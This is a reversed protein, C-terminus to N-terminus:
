CPDYADLCDQCNSLTENITFENTYGSTSLGLLTYCGYELNLVDYLAYIGGMLNFSGTVYGTIINSDCCNQLDVIKPVPSALICIECTPAGPSTFQLNFYSPSLNDAYGLVTYCKQTIEDYYFSGVNVDVEPPSGVIVQFIIGNCDQVEYANFCFGGKGGQLCALCTEFKEFPKNDYYIFTPLGTTSYSMVEWCLGFLDRLISGETFAMFESLIQIVEVRNLDCCLRVTLYYFPPCPNATTCVECSVVPGGGPYITVVDINYNTPLQDLDKDMVRWCIGFNDVFADDINLSTTSAIVEAYKSCCSEIFYMTPCPNLTTCDGCEADPIISVVTISEESLPAGTEGVVRWCLSNNDVFVDGLALGPLSGTVFETGQVCCSEIVLNQPCAYEDQCKACSEYNNLFTRTFNTVDNSESIVEWCNAETDVHFSGVQLGPSNVLETVTPECCNRIIFCGTSLIECPRTVDLTYSVTATPKELLVECEGLGDECIIEFAFGLYLRTTHVDYKSSLTIKNNFCIKGDFNGGEQDVPLYKIPMFTYSPIFVNTDSCDFSFIGYVFQVRYKLDNLELLKDIYASGNITIVDGNFLNTPIPIGSPIQPRVVLPNFEDIQNYKTSSWISMPPKFLAGYFLVSPEDLNSDMYFSHNVIKFIEPSCKQSDLIEVTVDNGVATANVNEGIFDISSVNSTIISGEDKISIKNGGSISIQTGM